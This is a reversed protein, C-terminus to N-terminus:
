PRSPNLGAGIEIDGDGVRIDRHHLHLSRFRREQQGGSEAPPDGIELIEPGHRCFELASFDDNRAGAIATFEAILDIEGVGALAIGQKLM